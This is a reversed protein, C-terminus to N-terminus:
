KKGDGLKIIPKEHSIIKRMDSNTLGGGMHTITSSASVYDSGRILKYVQSYNYIALLFFMFAYILTNIVNRFHEYMSFKVITVTQGFVTVTIDKISSDAYDSNFLKTYSDINLISNLNAKIGNFKDTFYTDYPVFLSLLLDLLGNLIGSVINGIASLISKIVDLISSLLSSLGSLLGGILSKILDGLAGIAGLIGNLLGKLMDWLGSFFSKIGDLIGTGEGTGTDTGTNDWPKTNDLGLSGDPNLVGTKDQEGDLPLTEVRTKVEERPITTGRSSEIYTDTPLPLYGKDPLDKVLSKNITTSDITSIDYNLPEQFTLPVEIGNANIGVINKFNSYVEGYGTKYYNWNNYSILNNYIDYFSIYVNTSSMSTGVVVSLRLKGNPFSSNLCDYIISDNGNLNYFKIKTVSSPLNITFKYSEPFYDRVTNPVSYKNSYVAGNSYGKMGSVADVTNYNVSPVSTPSTFNEIFKKLKATIFLGKITGDLGKVLLEDKSNGANVWKTTFLRGYETQSNSGIVVGTAAILLAGITWFFIDDIIAIAQTEKQKYDTVVGFALLFVLCFAIFSKYKLIKKM